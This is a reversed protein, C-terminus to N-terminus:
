ILATLGKSRRRRAWRDSNRSLKGENHLERQDQAFNQRRMEVKRASAERMRKLDETVTAEFKKRAIKRIRAHTPSDYHWSRRDVVWRKGRLLTPPSQSFDKLSM